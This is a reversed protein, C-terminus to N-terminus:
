GQMYCMGLEFQAKAHGQTAAKKFWKVAKEYHKPFSKNAWYYFGLHYQAEINGSHALKKTTAFDKIKTNKEYIKINKGYSNSVVLNQLVITIIALFLLKKM